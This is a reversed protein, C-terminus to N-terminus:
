NKLRALIHRARAKFAASQHAFDKELILQLEPHIWDFEKGLLYLSNMAYAKVAVKEDNIMWDFSAEIIREKYVFKLVKQVDVSEKHYYATTIIECIKAMPRKASDHNIVHLNETFVDLHPILLSLEASCMFELIWAARFSNKENVNFAIEILLPINEPQNMFLQSYHDRKEKSHNVYKLEALLQEKTM